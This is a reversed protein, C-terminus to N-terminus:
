GARFAIAMSQCTEISASIAVTLGVISTVDGSGSGASECSGCM